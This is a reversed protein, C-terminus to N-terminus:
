RKLYSDLDLKFILDDSSPSSQHVEAALVNLGPRLLHIPLDAELPTTEEPGGVDWGALTRPGIKGSPLNSRYVERGNLYVVIGDDRLLRMVLRRLNRPNEVRFTTRFCTTIAKHDPSPGFGITAAENGHGFGILGHGTAWSSDDFGPQRWRGTPWGGVHLKWTTGDGTMSHAAQIGTLDLDFSTDTSTSNAQHVEVALLNPGAVLLAPDVATEFFTSEPSGGVVGSAPTLYNITGSPMNSRFVETGNLYVVAGDDRLLGLSAGTFISPDAVQFTHRYWTTIYKNNPDPGFSVVTAEDGDGYGLQASGSNWASDNFGPVRWATGQNSGDDLYKWTSGSPVLLPDQGGGGGGGAGDPNVTTTDIVVGNKNIFKLSAMLPGAEVLLAGFEANYRVQSGAVPTKFAYKNNGGLGDVFYPFGNVVVREYTHDHGSFVAQAGWQKFPWQMWVNNGHTSSSYAAHHFVVFKYPANSAALAAQLWQGQISSSTVGDPEHADSDVFFLHVSGIRKDYYRENGPLTFYNLYPQANSTIWDHNGLCPWFRNTTGGPGFSGTYPFIYASYFQGINADITSSAGDPYNNDGATAIFDVNWTDILTSVDQPRSSALGFDGIVAFRVPQFAEKHLGPNSPNPSPPGFSQAFVTGPLGLVLLGCVSVVRSLTTQHMQAIAFPHPPGLRALPRPLIGQHGM